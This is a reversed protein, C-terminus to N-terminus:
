DARRRLAFFILLSYLLEGPVLILDLGEGDTGSCHSRSILLSCSLNDCPETGEKRDKISEAPPELIGWKNNSEFTGLDELSAVSLMVMEGTAPSTHPVYCMKDACTRNVNFHASTIAHQFSFM